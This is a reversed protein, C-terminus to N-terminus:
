ALLITLNCTAYLLLHHNRHQFWGFWPTTQCSISIDELNWLLQMLNETVFERFLHWMVSIKSYSAYYFYLIPNWRNTANIPLSYKCQSFIVKHREPPTSSLSTHHSLYFRQLPPWQGNVTMLQNRRSLIFALHTFYTHNLQGVHALLHTNHM